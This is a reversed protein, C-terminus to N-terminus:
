VGGSDWEEEEKDASRRGGLITSLRLFLCGGSDEAVWRGFDACPYGMRSVGKSGVGLLIGWIGVRSGASVEQNVVFEYSTVGLNLRSPRADDFTTRGRDAFSCLRMDRWLEFDLTIVVTVSIVRVSVSDDEGLLSGALGTCTVGLKLGVLLLPKLGRESARCAEGRGRVLARDLTITSM